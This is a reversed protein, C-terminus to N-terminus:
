GQAILIDSFYRDLESTQDPIVSMSVWLDPRVVVVAGTSHDVGWMTHVDEDPARDDFAVTAIERLDKLEEGAMKQELEFPLCKIVLVVNFIARGGYRHYFGGKGFCASLQRISKAM